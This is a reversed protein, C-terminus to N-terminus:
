RGPGLIWSRFILGETAAIRALTAHQEDGREGPHLLAVITGGSGAYNAPADHARVLEILRVHSPSLDSISARLDFSANMARGLEVTDGAVFAAAASTAQLALDNMARRVDTEGADYRSRLNGHFVQSPESAAEDSLICFRFSSGPTLPTVTFLAQASTEARPFSMDCTGGYTQVVRDQLGATIGLRTEVALALEPLEADAIEHQHLAAIARLTAIVLASSGALGVSRPINTQWDIRLPGLNWDSIVQLTALFLDTDDHSFAQDAPNAFTRHDGIQFENAAGVSVTATFAPVVTALVRGNYGDSPNGALAARAPVDKRM